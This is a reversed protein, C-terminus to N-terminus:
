KTELSGLVDNLTQSGKKEVPILSVDSRNGELLSELYGDTYHEGVKMEHYNSVPKPCNCYYYAIGLQRWDLKDLSWDERPASYMVSGDYFLRSVTNRSKLEKARDLDILVAFFGSEDSGDFCINELRVDLHAMGCEHLQQLALSVSEFYDALCRTVDRKGLPLKLLPYKFFDQDLCFVPEPEPLLFAKQRLSLYNTNTSLRRRVRSLHDRVVPSFIFKYVSKEKYSCIVIANASPMQISGEGFQLAITEQKLPIAYDVRPPTTQIKFSLSLVQELQRQYTSGISEAIECVNFSLLHYTGDFIISDEFWEIDVRTVCADTQFAPFVFASWETITSDANRLWRMQDFLILMAKNITSAYSEKASENSKSHVEILLVPVEFKESLEHVISVDPKKSESALLAPVTKLVGDVKNGTHRVDAKPFRKQLWTVVALESDRTAANKEKDDFLRELPYPHGVLATLCERWESQGLFEFQLTHQTLQLTSQFASRHSLKCTPECRLPAAHTEKVFKSAM